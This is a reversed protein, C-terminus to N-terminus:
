NGGNLIGKWQLRGRGDKMGVNMSVIRKNIIEQYPYFILLHGDM